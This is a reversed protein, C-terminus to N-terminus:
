KESNVQITFAQNWKLEKSEVFLPTTDFEKKGVTLRVFTGKQIPNLTVAEVVTTKITRKPANSYDQKGGKNKDESIKIKVKGRKKSM